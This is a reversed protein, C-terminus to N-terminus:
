FIGTVWDHSRFNYGTGNNSNGSFDTFSSITDVASDLKMLLVNGSIGTFETHARYNSDITAIDSSSLATNFILPRDLRGNFYLSPSGNNLISGILVPISSDQYLSSMSTDTLKSVSTDETGDVFLKLTGSNWTFAFSHWNGDGLDSSTRYVKKAIGGDDSLFVMLKTGGTYANEVFWSRKGAGYDSKSMMVAEGTIVNRFFFMVTAQTSLNLSSSHPISIRQVGAFRLGYPSTAAAEVQPVATKYDSLNGDYVGNNGNGSEDLVNALTDRSDYRETMAISNRFSLSNIVGPSGNKDLDYLEQVQTPTLETLTTIPRFYSGALQLTPSTGNLLSGVTMSTTADQNLATTPNNNTIVTKVQQRADVYMTLTGANYTFGLHHWYGDNWVDDGVTFRGIQGNHSLLVGINPGYTELGWCRKNQTYNSKAFIGLNGGAVTSKLWVFSSLLTSPSISSSHPIIISNTGMQLSRMPPINNGIFGFWNGQAPFVLAFALFLATFRRIM